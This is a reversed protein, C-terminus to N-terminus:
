NIRLSPLYRSKQFTAHVHVNFSLFMVVQKWMLLEGRNCVAACFHAGRSCVVDLKSVDMELDGSQDVIEWSEEEGQRAARLVGFGSSGRVVVYGDRGCQVSCLDEKSIVLEDAESVRSWEVIEPIKVKAAERQRELERWEILEWSRHLLEHLLRDLMRFPQPLTDTWLSPDQLYDEPCDDEDSGDYSILQQLRRTSAMM